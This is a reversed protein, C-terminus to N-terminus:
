HADHPGNRQPLLISWDMRCSPSAAPRLQWEVTASTRSRRGLVMEREGNVCFPAGPARPATASTGGVTMLHLEAADVHHAEVLREALRTVHRRM